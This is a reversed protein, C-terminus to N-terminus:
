LGVGGGPILDTFLPIGNGQVTAQICIVEATVSVGPLQSPNLALSDGGAQSQVFATCKLTTEKFCLSSSYLGLSVALCDCLLCLCVSMHVCAGAPIGPRHDGTGEGRERDTQTQGGHPPGLARGSRSGVPGEEQQQGGRYQAASVCPVLSM